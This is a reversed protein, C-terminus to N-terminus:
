TIKLSGIAAEKLAKNKRQRTRAFLGTYLKPRGKKEFSAESAALLREIISNADEDNGLEDDDVLDDDSNDDGNSNNSEYEQRISRAVNIKETQQRKLASPKPM